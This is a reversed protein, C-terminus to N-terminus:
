SESVRAGLGRVGLGRFGSFKLAKTQSELCCLERTSLPSYPFPSEPNKNLIIHPSSYPDM